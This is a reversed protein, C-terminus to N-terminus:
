EFVQGLESEQAAKDLALERADPFDWPAFALVWVLIIPGFPVVALAAWAPSFGFRSAFRALIFLQLCFGILYSIM